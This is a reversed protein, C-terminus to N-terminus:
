QTAHEIHNSSNLQCKASGLNKTVQRFHPRDALYAQWLFIELTCIDSVKIPKAEVKRTKHSSYLTPLFSEHDSISIGKKLVHHHGEYYTREGFWLFM